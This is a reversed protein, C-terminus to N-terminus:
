TYIGAEIIMLINSIGIANKELATEGSFVM